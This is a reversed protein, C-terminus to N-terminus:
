SFWLLNDFHRHPKCCCKIFLYGCTASIFTTAIHVLMCVYMCNGALLDSSLRFCAIIGKAATRLDEVVTIRWNSQPRKTNRVYCHPQMRLTHAYLAGNHVCFYSSLWVCVCVCWICVRGGWTALWLIHMNTQSYKCAQIWTLKYCLSASNYGSMM